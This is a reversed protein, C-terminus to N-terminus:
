NGKAASVPPAAGAVRDLSVVLVADREEAVRGLLIAESKGDSDLDAVHLARVSDGGLVGLAIPVRIPERALLARRPDKTGRLREVGEDDLVAFDAVGDGTLDAAYSTAESRVGM